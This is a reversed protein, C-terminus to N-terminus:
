KKGSFILSFLSHYKFRKCKVVIQHNFDPLIFLLVYFLAQGGDAPHGHLTAQIAYLSAAVIFGLKEQTQRHL